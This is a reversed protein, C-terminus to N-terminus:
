AIPREGRVTFPPLHDRMLQQLLPQYEREALQVGQIAEDHENMLLIAKWVIIQHFRTPMDPIDGNAALIQPAKRYEGQIPYAKDPKPGLRFTQDPALCYETPKNATQTGRDYRTRWLEWSVMNIHGEDGVGITPDYLTVPRYNGYDGIFEGFRTSIGLDTATYTDDNITLTASWESRLFSWDPSQLQLMEWAKATWAVVKALRGTQGTVAAPASAAGSLLAVDAALQLYTPM